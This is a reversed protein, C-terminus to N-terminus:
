VSFTTFSIWNKTIKCWKTDVRHRWLDDIKCLDFDQIVWCGLTSDFYFLRWEEDNQFSKWILYYFIENWLCKLSLKFNFNRKCSVPNTKFILIKIHLKSTRALQKHAALRHLYCSLTVPVHKDCMLWSQSTGVTFLCPTLFALFFIAARCFYPFYIKIVSFFFLPVAEWGQLLKIMSVSSSFASRPPYWNSTM